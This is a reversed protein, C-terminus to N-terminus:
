KQETVCLISGINDAQKDIKVFQFAIVGDSRKYVAPIGPVNNIKALKSYNDFSMTWRNIPFLNRKVKWIAFLGQSNVLYANQNFLFSLCLEFPVIKKLNYVKVNYSRNPLLKDTPINFCKDLLSHHADFEKRLNVYAFDINDIKIEACSYLEFFTDICYQYKGEIISQLVTSLVFPNITSFPAKKNLGVKLKSNILDIQNQIAIYFKNSLSFRGHKQEM